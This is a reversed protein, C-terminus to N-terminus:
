PSGFGAADLAQAGPLTKVFARARETHGTGTVVAVAYRVPPADEVFIAKLRGSAARVDTAYVFGADVAGTAVKGVVGAVDPEESRVNRLSKPSMVARAYDGVPVGKAGIALTTGPREIDSLTTIKAKNAPIALVLRNTAFVIPKEVLGEAHLAAPLEQNAAAFVDPKVGQRIQAALQDSGAFSLAVEDKQADVHQSLANKLSTAASVRLPRDGDTKGDDNCGTPAAPLVLALALAATALANM